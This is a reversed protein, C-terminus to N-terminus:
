VSSLESAAFQRKPHIAQDHFKATQLIKLAVYDSLDVLGHISLPGNVKGLSTFTGNKNVRKNKFGDLIHKSYYYFDIKQIDTPIHGLLIQCYKFIGDKLINAFEEASVGQKEKRQALFFILQFLQNRISSCMYFGLHHLSFDAVIGSRRFNPYLLYEDPNDIRGAPVHELSYSRGESAVHFISILEGHIVGFKKICLALNIFWSVAEEHSIESNCYNFYELPAEYVFGIYYKQDKTKVLKTRVSAPMNKINNIQEVPIYFLYNGNQTNSLTIPNPFNFDTGSEMVKGYFWPEYNFYSTYEGRQMLKLVHNGCQISRGASKANNIDIGLKTLDTITKDPEKIQPFQDLLNQNPELMSITDPNWYLFSKMIPHIIPSIRGDENLSSEVFYRFASPFLEIILGLQLFPREWNTNDFLFQSERVGKDFTFHFTESAIHKFMDSVLKDENTSMAERSLYELTSFFLEADKSNLLKNRNHKKAFFTKLHELTFPLRKICKYLIKLDSEDFHDFYEDILNLEKFESSGRYSCLITDHAFPIILGENETNALVIYGEESLINVLDSRSVHTIGITNLLELFNSIAVMQTGFNKPMNATIGKNGEHNLSLVTKQQFIDKTHNSLIAKVLCKLSISHGNILYTLEEIAYTNKSKEIKHLLYRTRYELFLEPSKLYEFFNYIVREASLQASLIPPETSLFDIKLIEYFDEFCMFGMTGHLAFSSVLFPQLSNSLDKFVTEGKSNLLYCQVIETLLAKKVDSTEIDFISKILMEFYHGKNEGSIRISKSLALKKGFIKLIKRGVSLHRDREKELQTITELDDIIPQRLLFQLQKEIDEIPKICRNTLELATACGFTNDEVIIKLATELEAPSLNITKQLLESITFLDTKHALKYECSRGGCAPTDLLLLTSTIL